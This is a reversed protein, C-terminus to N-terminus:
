CDPGPPAVAIPQPGAPVSLVGDPLTGARTGTRDLHRTSGLCDVVGMSPGASPEDRCVPPHLGGLLTVDGVLWVLRELPASSDVPGDDALAASGPRLTARLTAARWSGIPQHAAAMGMARDVGAAVMRLASLGDVTVPRLVAGALRDALAADMSALRIGNSGEFRGHTAIQEEDRPSDKVASIRARANSLRQPNARPETLFRVRTAPRSIWERGNGVRAVAGSSARWSCVSSEGSSFLRVWGRPKDIGPRGLWALPTTRCNGASRRSFACALINASSRTIRPACALEAFRQLPWGSEVARGALRAITPRVFLLFCVLSSVPNGPLGFVLTTSNATAATGFWLPKGPRLAITHFVEKVGAEALVGPVWDKDGASVGGSIVLVESTLGRDIAARLEARDDPVIELPLDIGGGRRILAQLMPGNSNRIQGPKPQSEHPVLEDGTPLSAVRPRRYVSPRACGTEALLGVDVARLVHGAALVREGKRVCAGQRLISLGPVVGESHITVRNADDDAVQTQERMVVADAGHPLAAGTMIRTAFGSAVRFRPLAGAPLDELIPFSRDGEALDAAVIAYGDVLSKDYPPSDIDSVLDTALACGLADPLPVEECRPAPEHSEIRGMAAEIEIM